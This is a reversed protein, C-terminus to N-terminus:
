AKVSRREHERIQQAIRKLKEPVTNQQDSPIVASAVRQHGGGGENEFIKGLQVSRFRKWPNRMATITTREPTRIVGLSYRAKPYVLYPAYRSVLADPASVDFLALGDPSLEASQRFLKLGAHVRERTQRALSKVEPDNAIETLARERFLRVLRIPFSKDGSALSMNIRIAANHGLVAQKVTDYDASDIRRAWEVATRFRNHVRRFVPGSRSWLLQACASANPDYILNARKFLRCNRQDAKNLFTTQHHDAWLVANPHYLFDVIAMPQPLPDTLWTPRVGYNIPVLDEVTWGREALISWALACSVAGDFCPAHFFLHIKRGGGQEINNLWGASSKPM